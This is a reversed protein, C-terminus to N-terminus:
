SHKVWVEANAFAAALYVLCRVLSYGSTDSARLCPVLLFPLSSHHSFPSDLTCRSTGIVFASSLFIYSNSLCTSPACFRSAISDRSKEPQSTGCAGFAQVRESLSAGTQRAFEESTIQILAPMRRAPLRGSRPSCFSSNLSLSLFSSAGCHRPPSLQQLWSKILNMATWERTAVPHM